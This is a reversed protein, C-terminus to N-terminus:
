QSIIIFRFIFAREKISILMPTSKSSIHSVAGIYFQYQMTCTTSTQTTTVPIYSPYTFLMTGSMLSFVNDDIFFFRALSTCSCLKHVKLVSRSDSMCAYTCIDQM